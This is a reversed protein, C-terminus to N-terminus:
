VDTVTQLTKLFNTYIHILLSRGSKKINIWVCIAPSSTLKANNRCSNSIDSYREKDGMSTM